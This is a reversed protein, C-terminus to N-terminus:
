EGGLDNADKRGEREQLLNVLMKRHVEHRDYSEQRHQDLKEHLARIEAEHQDQNHLIISGEANAFANLYSNIVLVFVVADRFGILLPIILLEALITLPHKAYILVAPFVKEELLLLLRAYM